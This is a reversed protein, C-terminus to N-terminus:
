GIVTFSITTRWGLHTVAALLYAALFAFVYPRMAVTGVAIRLIEDM